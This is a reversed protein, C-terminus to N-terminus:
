FFTSKKSFITYLISSILNESCKLPPFSIAAFFDLLSDVDFFDDEVFDFDPPLFPAADPMMSVTFSTPPSSKDPAACPAAALAIFIKASAALSRIAPPVSDLPPFLEEDLPPLEPAVPPLFPPLPLLLLAEDDFALPPADALLEPVFPVPLAPLDVLDAPEEDFLPPPAADLALLEAPLPEAVALLPPADLPPLEPPAADFLEAEDAFLPPEDLDVPSPLDVPPPLDVAALLEPSAPVFPVPLAPLDAAPAFPPLFDLYCLLRFSVPRNVPHDAETRTKPSATDTRKL